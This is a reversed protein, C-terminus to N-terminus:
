QRQIATTHVSTNDSCIALRLDRDERTFIQLLLMNYETIAGETPMSTTTLYCVQQPLSALAPVETTGHAATFRTWHSDM